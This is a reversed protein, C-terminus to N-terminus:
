VRGVVMVSGDATNQCHSNDCKSEGNNVFTDVIIQAGNIFDGFQAEWIALTSPNDISVGYEYGLIAEESLASNAVQLILCVTVGTVKEKENHKDKSLEASVPFRVFIISKAKKSINTLCVM